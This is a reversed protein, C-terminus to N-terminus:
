LSLRRGFSRTVIVEQNLMLVEVHCIIEVIMEKAQCEWQGWLIRWNRRLDKVKESCQHASGSVANCGMVLIEVEM